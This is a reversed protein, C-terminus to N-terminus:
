WTMNPLELGFEKVKAKLANPSGIKTRDCGHESVLYDRLQQINTIDSSTIINDGNGSETAKQLGAAVRAKENELAKKARRIDAETEVSSELRIKGRRFLPHQEIAYQEMPSETKYTARKLSGSLMEADGDTFEIPFRVVGMGQRLEITIKNYNGDMSYTKLM